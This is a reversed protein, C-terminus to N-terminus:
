RIKDVVNLATEACVVCFLLDDLTAIFTHMGGNNKLYTVVKKKEQNTKISVCSPTILNEPSVANAVADAIKKNIYELVVEAEL